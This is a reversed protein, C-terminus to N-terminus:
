AWAVMRSSTSSRMGPLLVALETEGSELLAQAAVGQEWARRQMALMARIVKQIRHNPDIKMAFQPQFGLDAPSVLIKKFFM